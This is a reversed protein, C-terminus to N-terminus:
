PKKVTSPYGADSTAKTLAEANTKTSEFSVLAQKTKYDVNASNVGDINELSKKVTIPCVPCNMTPLDLAVTLTESSAAICFTSLACALILKNM